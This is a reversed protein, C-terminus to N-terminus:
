EDEEDNLVDNFLSLEWQAVTLGARHSLTKTIEVLGDYDEKDNIQGWGGAAYVKRILGRGDKDDIKDLKKYCYDLVNRDIPCVPPENKMWGLCWLWKLYVSLSKQCQAIRITNNEFGLCLEKGGKGKTSNMEQQFELVDSSFSSTDREEDKYYKLAYKKLLSKWVAIIEKKREWKEQREEKSDASRERISESFVHCKKSRTQIAANVASRLAIREIFETKCKAIDMNSVSYKNKAVFIFPIKTVARDGTGFSPM